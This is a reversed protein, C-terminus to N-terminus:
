IADNGGNLNQAITDLFLTEEPGVGHRARDVFRTFRHEDKLRRLVDQNSKSQYGSSEGIHMSYGQKNLYVTKFPLRCFSKIFEGEAAGVNDVTKMNDYVFSLNDRHTLIEAHGVM